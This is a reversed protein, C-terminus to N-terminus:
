RASPGGAASPPGNPKLAKSIVGARGSLCVAYGNKRYFYLQRDRHGYDGPALVGEVMTVGAESLLSEALGLVATGLGRNIVGPGRCHINRITALRGRVAALLVIDPGSHPRGIARVVVTDPGRDAVLLVPRGGKDAVILGAALSGRAGQRLEDLTRQLARRRSLRRRAAASRIRSAILGTLRLPPRGTIPPHDWAKWLAGM